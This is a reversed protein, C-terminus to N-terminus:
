WSRRTKTKVEASEDNKAAAALQQKTLPKAAEQKDQAAARGGTFAFALMAALTLLSTRLVTTSNKM